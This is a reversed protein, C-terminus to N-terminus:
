KKMRQRQSWMKPESFEVDQHSKAGYEGDLPATLQEQKTAKGNGEAQQHPARM